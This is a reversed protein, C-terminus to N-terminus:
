LIKTDAWVRPWQWQWQTLAQTLRLSSSLAQTLAQTGSGLRLKFIELYKKPPISKVLCSINRQTQHDSELQFQQKIYRLMLISYEHSLPWDRGMPRHCWCEAAGCKRVLNSQGLSKPEVHCENMPHIICGSGKLPRSSTMIFIIMFPGKASNIPCFILILVKGRLRLYPLLVNIVICQDRIIHPWHM